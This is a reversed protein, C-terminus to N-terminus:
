NRGWTRSPQNEVVGKEIYQGRANRLASLGEGLGVVACLWDRGDLWVEIEIEFGALVDM